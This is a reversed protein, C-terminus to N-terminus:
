APATRGDGLALHEDCPSTGGGYAGTTSVVAYRGDPSIDLDRMYSQFASACDPDYFSTAWNAVVASAGTLDLM